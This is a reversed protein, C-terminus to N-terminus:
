NQLTINNYRWPKSFYNTIIHYATKLSFLLNGRPHFLIYVFYNFLYLFLVIDVTQMSSSLMGEHGGGGKMIDWAPKEDGQVTETPAAATDADIVGM